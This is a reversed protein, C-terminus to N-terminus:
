KLSATMSEPPKGTEEVSESAEIAADCCLEKGNANKKRKKYNEETANGTEFNNDFHIKQQIPGKFIIRDNLIAGPSGSNENFESTATSQYQSKMVCPTDANQYELEPIYELWHKDMIKGISKPTSVQEASPRFGDLLPALEEDLIPLVYNEMTTQQIYNLLACYSRKEFLTNYSRVNAVVIM